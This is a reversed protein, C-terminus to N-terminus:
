PKEFAAGLECHTIKGRRPTSCLHAARKDGEGWGGEAEKAMAKTARPEKRKPFIILLSLSLQRCTGLDGTGETVRPLAGHSAHPLKPWATNEQGDADRRGDKLKQGQSEHRTVTILGAEQRQHFAVGSPNQAVFEGLGM